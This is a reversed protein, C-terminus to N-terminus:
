LQNAGNNSGGNAAHHTMMNQMQYSRSNPSLSHRDRAMYMQPNQGQYNQQYQM